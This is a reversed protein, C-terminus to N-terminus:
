MDIVYEKRMEYEAKKGPNWQKVPRLYGVVRSYVECPQLRWLSKKCDDCVLHAVGTDESELLTLAHEKHGKLRPHEWDFDELNYDKLINEM